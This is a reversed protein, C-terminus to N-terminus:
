FLGEGEGEIKVYDRGREPITFTKHIEKAIGHLYFAEQSAEVWYTHTVIAMLENALKKDLLKVNVWSGYLYELQYTLTQYIHKAEKGEAAFKVINRHDNAFSDTIVFYEQYLERKDKPLLENEALSKYYSVKGDLLAQAKVSDQFAQDKKSLREVAEKNAQEVSESVRTAGPLYGNKVEHNMLGSTLQAFATVSFCSLISVVLLCKKM